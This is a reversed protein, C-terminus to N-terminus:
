TGQTHPKCVYLVFGFLVVLPTKAAISAALLFGFGLLALAARGIPKVRPEPDDAPMHYIAGIMLWAGLWCALTCLVEIM